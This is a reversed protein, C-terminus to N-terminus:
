RWRSRSWSMSAPRLAELAFPGHEAMSTLVVVLDIDDDHILDDHAAVAGVDGYLSVARQAAEANVDCM